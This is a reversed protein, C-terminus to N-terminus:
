STSPSSLYTVPDNRLGAKCAIWLLSGAERNVSAQLSGFNQTAM